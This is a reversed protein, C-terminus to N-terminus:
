NLCIKDGELTILTGKISIEGDPRLIIEAAGARLIMAADSALVFNGGSYTTANRMVHAHQHGGVNEAPQETNSM